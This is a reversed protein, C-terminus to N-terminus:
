LYRNQKVRGKDGAGNQVWGTAKGPAGHRGPNHCEDIQSSAAGADNVYGDRGGDKALSSASRGTYRDYSASGWDRLPTHSKPM